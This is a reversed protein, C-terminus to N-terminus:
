EAIEAFAVHGHDPAAAGNQIGAKDRQAPERRPQRPSKDMNRKEWSRAVPPPDPCLPQPRREGPLPTRLKNHLRAAALRGPLQVTLAGLLVALHIFVCVRLSM